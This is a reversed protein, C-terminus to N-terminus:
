CFLKVLKHIIILWKEHLNVTILGCAWAEKAMEPQCDKSVPCFASPSCLNAQGRPGTLCLVSNQTSSDCIRHLGLSDCIFLFHMYYAM